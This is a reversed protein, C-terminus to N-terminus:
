KSNTSLLWGLIVSYIGLPYKKKGQGRNLYTFSHQTHYYATLYTPLYTPLNPLLVRPYSPIAHPLALVYTSVEEGVAMENTSSNGGGDSGGGSSGEEGM